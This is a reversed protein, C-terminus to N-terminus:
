IEEETTSAVDVIVEEPIEVEFLEREKAEIHMLAEEFTVPTLVDTAVSLARLSQLSAEGVVYGHQEPETPVKDLTTISGLIGGDLAPLVVVDGEHLVIDQPVSVRITGDGVGYATTFIDPGLIYVTTSVGPTSFLTVLSTHGYVRSVMGIARDGYHYAVAGEEIGEARGGDILVADYPLMPPQAIVSVAIREGETSRGLLQRLEENESRLVTVEQSEMGRGRLEEELTIIRARLTEKDSRYLPDTLRSEVMYVPEVVAAAIGGVIGRGIYICALVVLVGVVIRGVPSKSNRHYNGKKKSLFSQM